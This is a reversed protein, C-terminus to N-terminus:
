VLHVKANPKSDRTSAPCSFYAWHHPEENQQSHFYLLAQSKYYLPNIFSLIKEKRFHEQSSTWSSLIRTVPWNSLIRKDLPTDIILSSKPSKSPVSSETVQSVVLMAQVNSGHISDHSIQQEGITSINKFGVTSFCANHTYNWLM